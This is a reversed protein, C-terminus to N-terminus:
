NNIFCDFVYNNDQKWIPYITYKLYYRNNNQPLNIICLNKDPDIKFESGASIYEYKLEYINTGVIPSGLKGFFWGRNVSGDIKSTLEWDIYFHTIKVESETEYELTQFIV